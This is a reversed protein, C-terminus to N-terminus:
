LMKRNYFLIYQELMPHITSLPVSTAGDGQSTKASDLHCGGGGLRTSVSLYKQFVFNTKELYRHCFYKKDKLYTHFM